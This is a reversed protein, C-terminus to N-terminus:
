GRDAKEYGAGWERMAIRLQELATALEGEDNEADIFDVANEKAGEQEGLEEDALIRPRDAM